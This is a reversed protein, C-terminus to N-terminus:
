KAGFFSRAKTLDVKHATAWAQIQADSYKPSAGPGGGAKSGPVVFDPEPFHKHNWDNFRTADKGTALYAGIRHTSDLSYQTMAQGNKVMARVADDTMTNSPNLVNLLNSQSKDTMKPFMSKGAQLAANSLYKALEQTNTAAPIQVGPVWAAAKGLVSSWKGATGGHNMIDDAAAYFTQAQQLPQVGDDNTQKLAKRAAVQNDKDDQEDKSLATGFPQRPPVYDYSHDALAASMQPDPQGNTTTTGSKPTSPLAQAPAAAATAANIGAQASQRAQYKPVGGITPQASMVGGHAAMQMVWSGLDPAKNARYREIQTIHGNGDPYPVLEMGSKALNAWQDESLGSKAISPITIGSVSDIYTGDAKATFPRGTYQHAEGAVQASYARAAADEDRSEDPDNAFHAKIKAVTDPAVAELQAMANNPDADVVSHMAEFLNNSAYQTQGTQADIRLQRQQKALESMGLDGKPDAIAAQQIRQAESPTVPPVFFQSRLHQSIQAPDYWSTNPDAAGSSDGGSSLQPSVPQGNPGTNGTSAASPASDSPDNSTTDNFDSIAKMIFPMRAKTIQNQM